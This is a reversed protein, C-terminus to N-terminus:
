LFFVNYHHNTLTLTTNRYIKKTDQILDLNQKDFIIKPENYINGITEHRLTIILM